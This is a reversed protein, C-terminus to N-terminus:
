GREDRMAAQIDGARYYEKTKFARAPTIRLDHAWVHFETVDIGVLTAAARTDILRDSPLDKELTSLFLFKSVIDPGLRQADPDSVM